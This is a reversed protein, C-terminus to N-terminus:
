GTPAIPPMGLDDSWQEGPVAVDQEVQEPATVPKGGTLTNRAAVAHIPRERRVPLIAAVSHLQLQQFGVLHAVHKGGEREKAREPLDVWTADRCGTM